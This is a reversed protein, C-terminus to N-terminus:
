SLRLNRLLHIRLPKQPYKESEESLAEMSAEESAEPSAEMSTGESAEPSAEMSTEKSAELSLAESAEESFEAVSADEGAAVVPEEMAYSPFGYCTFMMTMTLICSVIRGTMKKM